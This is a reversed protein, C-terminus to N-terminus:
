RILVLKQYGTTSVGKSDKIQMRYVYLGTPLKTNNNDTGDWSVEDTRSNTPTISEELTRVLAGTTNYIAIQVDLAENPHNHEFVFHTVDKFPNPYNMLGQIQVVSGDVVVFDVTGESYNDNVDWARVTISHKGNSLGNLAYSIYGQKYTNPATEYFDNLIYPQTTNNDLVGILDHGVSTGAINIGTQSYLVVYLTTNPGTIGGNVFFSDNIYPRVIPAVTSIVPNDSYGGITTTTDTQAADTIGNEAYSSIKGQGYSYNLDKPAIFSYSFKGNTFTAKGRYVLSNQVQFTLPGWYDVVTKTQPKDFISVSLNGNFNSLLNNSNDHVSGYITYAGLAKISDTNQLTADDKISDTQINYQPFDPTLAPDGLLSFKRFNTIDGTNPSYTINKGIRVADGFSNWQSTAIPAFQANLYQQDIEVNSGAYVAQTTILAAIVGGNNKLVLKEGASVTAPQDFQGFDCTATVMFPLKNLNTWANYDDPTLVREYSWLETNGHGNYNVLFTGQSIQNNITSNADPCRDGGPTSIVTNDDVYVKTENYLNQGSTKVNEAMQEANQMHDGAGDAKDGVFTASIRWPGFAVSSKYTVIKNVVGLADNLNRASIRGVGVDLTNPITGNEINENDDLFGFFDDTCYSNINDHSQSTEYTPTYNSNNVVRNKYDYSAGGLLLLYKPLLSSNSGAQVYFMRVFDRIASIDQAGSSFENYVQTTTAVIVNLHDNTTHFDAIKQAADMFDPYTVIIMGAQPSAHLNQNAVTGIYVPTNVNNSNMAVFEHLMQADQSFSYTSGNLTGNMLVPVQPNTVDWVATQSNADQLQYNAVMGSGVSNWDRFRLQSGSISLGRRLNLEIYNLYGNSSSNDWQYNIHFAATQSGLTGDWDLENSEVVPDFEEQKSQVAGISLTHIQTGNVSISFINANDPSVAAVKTASHISSVSSGFNFTITTGSGLLSNQGFQEGYWEQGLQAPNNIDSDHVVYDNFDTVTENATLTGQQSGIRLGAGLDFNLFYYSSDSYLNNQHIFRKNTSDKIWSTPGVAYFILYDGSGFVGDGGDNVYIANELLDNPRAVANNESLMNGGNGFVRINASKINSVDVGANKLFNFDIKYLGTNTVAIKYWKGTALISNSSTTKTPKSAIANATNEKETIVLSFDSLQNIQGSSDTYYAPIEVFIFPMKREKGLAVVLKSPDKSIYKADINGAIKYSKDNLQVEPTAFNYLWIKKVIYGKNIDSAQVHYSYNAAEAHLATFLFIFAAFAWFLKKMNLSYRKLTLFITTNLLQMKIKKNHQHWFFYEAGISKQIQLKRFIPSIFRQLLQPLSYQDAKASYTKNIIRWCWVSGAFSISEQTM